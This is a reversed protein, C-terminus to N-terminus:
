VYFNGELETKVSKTIVLTILVCYLSTFIIGLHICYSLIILGSITEYVIVFEYAIKLFLSVNVLLVILNMLLMFKDLEISYKNAKNINHQCKLKFPFLGFISCIKYFVKFGCVFCGNQQSM